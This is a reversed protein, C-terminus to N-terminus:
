ILAPDVLATALAVQQAAWERAAWPVSVARFAIRDGASLRSVDCVDASIIVGITPYGGTVAGDPGLIIAEGSPALQIAGALTPGSKVQLLDPVPVLQEAESVRLRVGSRAISHVTWMQELFPSPEFEDLGVGVSGLHSIIRLERRVGRSRPRLFIGARPQGALVSFADGAVVVPPGLGSFTDTACSGLTIPAQLGSVALYSPGPGVREVLVPRGPPLLHVTDTAAPGGDVSLWGDGTVAVEVPADAVMELRGGLIEFAPLSLSDSGSMLLCAQRYSHADFAGALPVGDAQYGDRGADQLTALGVSVVRLSTM